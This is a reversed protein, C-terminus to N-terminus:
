LYVSFYGFKENQRTILATKGPAFLEVRRGPVETLAM